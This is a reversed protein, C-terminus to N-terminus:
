FIPLSPVFIFQIESDRQKRFDYQVQRKKRNQYIYTKKLFYSFLYIFVFLFSIVWLVLFYFQPNRKLVLTMWINDYLIKSGSILHFIFKVELSTRPGLWGGPDSGPITNKFVFLPGTEGDVVHSIWNKLVINVKSNAVAEYDSKNDSWSHISYGYSISFSYLFKTLGIM